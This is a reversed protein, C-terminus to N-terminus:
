TQLVSDLSFREWKRVLVQKWYDQHLIWGIEAEDEAFLTIGCAGILKGSAKLIAAYQHDRCPSEVSKAIARSIFARTEAETNPGWLM